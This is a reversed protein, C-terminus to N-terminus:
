EIERKREGRRGYGKRFREIERESKKGVNKRTSEGRM